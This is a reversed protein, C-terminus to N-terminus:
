IIKRFGKMMDEWELLPIFEPREEITPIRCKKIFEEFNEDFDQNDNDFMGSQTKNESTADEHSRHFGSIVELQKCFYVEGDRIDGVMEMWLLVDEGVGLEEDFGSIEEFRKRLLCVGSTVVPHCSLYFRYARKEWNKYEPWHNCTLLKNWNEGTKYSVFNVLWDLATWWLVFKESSSEIGDVLEKLHGDYWFDDGDLLAIYPNNGQRIGENRAQSVGKGSQRIYNFHPYRSILEMGEDYHEWDEPTGDVIWTEFNEITQANISVLCQELFEPKVKYIPVVIDFM